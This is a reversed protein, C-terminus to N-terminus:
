QPAPAAPPSAAPAPEATPTVAPTPAPLEVGGAAARARVLADLAAPDLGSAGVARAAGEPSLRGGQHWLGVLRAGNRASRWWPGEGADAALAQELQAAVLIARLTDGARLLPDPEALWPPPEGRDVPHGTARAALAPWRVAAGAPDRARDIEGLVRAAALRAERLRRGAALRVERRLPEDALGRERLWEPSGAVTALLRGWGETLPAPPLLRDEVEAAPDVHAAAQAVGLESLFARAPELGAVPTVSLRVTGPPAVAVALPRPLKGPRPVADLTLHGGAALDLGLGALVAEGGAVLRDAPFAAAPATV